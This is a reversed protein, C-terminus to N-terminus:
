IDCFGWLEMELPGGREGSPRPHTGRIFPPSAAVGEGLSAPVERVGPRLARGGGQPPPEQSRPVGDGQGIFSVSRESRSSHPRGGRPTLAGRMPGGEEGGPFPSTGRKGAPLHFFREEGM